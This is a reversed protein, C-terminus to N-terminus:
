KGHLLIARVTWSWAKFFVGEVAMLMMFFIFFVGLRLKEYLGTKEKIMLCGM